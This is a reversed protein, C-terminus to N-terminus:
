VCGSNHELWMHLTNRPSPLSHVFAEMGVSPRFVNFPWPHGSRHIWETLPTGPVSGYGLRWPVVQIPEIIWDLVFLLYFRCSKLLRAWIPELCFFILYETYVVESWREVSPLVWPFWCIVSWLVQIVSPRSLEAELILNLAELSDTRM